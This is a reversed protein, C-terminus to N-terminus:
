QQIILQDFICQDIRHLNKMKMIIYYLIFEWESENLTEGIQSRSM